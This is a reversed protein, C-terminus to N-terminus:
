WQLLPRQRKSKLRTGLPGRAPYLRIVEGDRLVEVPVRDGLRGRTTARQLATPKFIRKGDYSLVVDGPQFGARAAPSDGLVDTILVRNKQGTAYLLLDFSEDGIERRLGARLAGLERMYRGSRLWGERMAQHRLEIVEMESADFIERLREVEHSPVGGALLSGADFWLKEEPKQAEAPTDREAEPESADGGNGPSPESRTLDELQLSLWKVQAALERSREREAELAARLAEIEAGTDAAPAAPAVPAAPPADSGKIWAWVCVVLLALGAVIVVPLRWGGM